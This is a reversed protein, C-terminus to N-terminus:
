IWLITVKINHIGEKGKSGKSRHNTQIPLAEELVDVHADDYM